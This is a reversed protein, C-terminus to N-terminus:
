KSNNYEKVANVLAVINNRGTGPSTGGGASLLLGKNSSHNELCNIVDQKVQEETGKVLTDLPPVNGLLCVKDGVFKRAEKINILHSLNFINVGLEELCDYYVSNNTDNHYMKIIDGQFSDFIEKLYPHAFELYDDKSLFGVIDDLVLIGEVEQLVNAQAELWDKVTKTTKKLFKHANEPDIKIDTLFNTVSILHSALTLPGRAAVIKIKHGKDNVKKEINKYINLAFPMLGDKIPSPANLQSADKCNSAVHQVTPTKDDFYNVLCGYGSPELAMGYEVWFGPLFIIDPFENIVNMNVELWKNTDTFYDLTSIGAYGPLWPSDIILGIPISNLEECKACKKIIDWQESTM